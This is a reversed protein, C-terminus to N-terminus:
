GDLLFDQITRSQIGKGLQGTISDMTLIVKPHSDGIALLPRLERDRTAPDLISTAVQLYLRSGAKDAVFDVEYRDERGIHTDYGRRTLEAWVISELLGPLRTPAFDLVASVLGHDGPYYKDHTSLLGRGRLDYRAVPSVLYAEALCSLYESVTPHTLTRQQSKLFASISRASMPNGVNDLTFRAVREFLDAQRIQRRTFVDKTLISRYIDSVIQRAQADDYPAAYLAPFGGRRLYADFEQAVPRDQGLLERSFDLHEAFSLPSVQIEVYRGTIYTGLESSLMSSNSGTVYLDVRGEALLSNVLREWGSIEQVEDLLVYLPGDAPLESHIRENLALSDRWPDNELLDFDLRLVRDPTSHVAGLWDAMLTLLSSKGSRRIGTLVKIIPTDVYSRLGATYAPRDRLPM